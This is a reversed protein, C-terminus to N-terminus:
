NIETGGEPHHYFRAIMTRLLTAWGGLEVRLAGMSLSARKNFTIKSETLGRTLSDVELNGLPAELFFSAM